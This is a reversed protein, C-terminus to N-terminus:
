AARWRARTDGTKVTCRMRTGKSTYGIAGRPSCFAGPHVVASPARTTTATTPKRTTPRHTVPHTTPGHTTPRHPAPKVVRPAVPAVPPTATAPSPTAPRTVSPPVTVSPSASATPSSPVSVEAAPAATGQDPRCGALLSAAVTLGALVTPRFVNM